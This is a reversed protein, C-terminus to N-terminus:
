CMTRYPMRMTTTMHHVPLGTNSRLVSFLLSDHGDVPKRRNTTSIRGIILVKKVIQLLISALFYICLSLILPPEIVRLPGGFSASQILSAVPSKLSGGCYLHSRREEPINHLMSHYNKVSTESLVISGM